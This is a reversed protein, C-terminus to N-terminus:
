YIFASSVRPFVSLRNDEDSDFFKFLCFCESKSCCNMDSDDNLYNLLSYSIIYGAADRDM